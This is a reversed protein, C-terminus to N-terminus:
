SLLVRSFHSYCLVLHPSVTASSLTTYKLFYTCHRALIAYSSTIGVAISYVALLDYQAECNSNTASEPEVAMSALDCDLLNPIGFWCAVLTVVPTAVWIIHTTTKRKGPGELPRFM